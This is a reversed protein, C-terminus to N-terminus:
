TSSLGADPAFPSPDVAPARGLVLDALLEGALPGMTLGGAGFGTNVWLGPLGALPGILPHGADAVPRLGVRTELVTADRLGPALALAQELVERQGEATVRPDFGSGTERTAGAVVRGGDFAVLYHGTSPLVSPWGSTDVGALRLHTIQGRQPALGLGIGLPQLLRPTWAGAAVVVADAAVQAGDARVRGDATLEATGPLLHAGLRRAGDLLGARLSRGDVRAGSPVHLAALGEALPPFLRRAETAGFRTVGDGAATGDTRERVREEAADLEDRDRGVVLSGTRRFDVDHVGVTALQQLLTPYHAAGAAYLEYYPGTSPSSWPQVIGAGAATAIGSRDDHVVTVAVDRRALAFATSAGAVGSGVVVV